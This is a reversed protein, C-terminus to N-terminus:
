MEQYLGCNYMKKIFCIYRVINKSSICFICMIHEIMDTLSRFNIYKIQLHIPDLICFIISSNIICYIAKM